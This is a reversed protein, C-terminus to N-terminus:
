EIAHEVQEDKANALCKEWDGHKSCVSVRAEMVNDKDNVVFKDEMDPNSCHSNIGDDFYINSVYDGGGNDATGDVVKVYARRGAAKGVPHNSSSSAVKGGVIAENENEKAVRGM